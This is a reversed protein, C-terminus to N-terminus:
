IVLLLSSSQPGIGGHVRASLLVLVDGAHFTPISTKAGWSAAGGTVLGAAFGAPGGVLVATTKGALAGIVNTVTHRQDNLLDGQQRSLPRSVAARMHCPLKGPLMRDSLEAVKEVVQYHAKHIFPLSLTRLHCCAEPQIIFESVDFVLGHSAIVQYHKDVHM